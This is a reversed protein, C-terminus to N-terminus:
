FTSRFSCYSRLIYMSSRDGVSWGDCTVRLEIGQTGQSSLSSFDHFTQMSPCCAIGRGFLLFVSSRLIKRPSRTQQKDSVSNVGPKRVNPLQLCRLTMTELAALLYVTHSHIRGVPLLCDAAALLESVADSLCEPFLRGTGSMRVRVGCSTTEPSRQLRAIYIICLGGSVCDVVRNGIFQMPFLQVSATIVAHPARITVPPLLRRSASMESRPARYLLLM